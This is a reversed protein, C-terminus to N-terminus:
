LMKVFCIFLLMMGLIFVSYVFFFLLIIVFNVYLFIGKVLIIVLYNKNMRVLLLVRLVLEGSFCIEEGFNISKNKFKKFWEFVYNILDIVFLYEIVWWLYFYNFLRVM